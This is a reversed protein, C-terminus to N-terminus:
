QMKFNLHCSAEPSAIFKSGIQVANAGLVVAALMQRGTAISGAAIVPTTVKEKVVPILVFSTTEERGNHDGANFVKRLLHIVAARAKQAFKSSVGHIVKIDVAKLKSTLTKPNEASTFVIPVKYGIIIQIHQGINPYLLFM